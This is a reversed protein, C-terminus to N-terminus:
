QQFQLFSWFVENEQIPDAGLELLDAVVDIHGGLVALM